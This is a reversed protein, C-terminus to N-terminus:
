RHYGREVAAFDLEATALDEEIVADAALPDLVAVGKVYLGCSECCDARRHDGEGEAHLALLRRHDREGCGPCELRAFPWASACRGCRLTRGEEAGRLEALLPPAGCAPCSGRAWVAGALVPALQAAAARLVPRVAYDLAAVLSYEDVDLRRAVDAVEDWAGGLAAEALATGGPTGGVSHLAQAVALLSDGSAAGDGALARALAAVSEVLGGGDLLPEGTLAPVGAHLRAAAARADPVGAPLRVPVARMAALLARLSAAAPGLAEHRRVAADLRSPPRSPTPSTSPATV